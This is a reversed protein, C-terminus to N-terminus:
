FGFPNSPTAAALNARRGTPTRQLPPAGNFSVPPSPGTKQPPLVQQNQFGSFGGAPQSVNPFSTVGLAQAASPLSANGFGFGTPQGQLSNQYSSIGVTPTMAQTAGMLPQQQQMGYPLSPNSISTQHFQNTLNSMTNLSPSSFSAQQQLPTFFPNPAPPQPFSAGGTQQGFLQPNASSNQGFPQQGVGTMQGVFQNGSPAFPVTGSM